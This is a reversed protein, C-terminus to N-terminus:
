AGVLEVAGVGIGESFAFFSDGAGSSWSADVGGGESRNERLVVHEALVRARVHLPPSMGLIKEVVAGLVEGHDPDEPDNTPPSPAVRTLCRRRLPRGLNFFLRVSSLSCYPLVVTPPDPPNKRRFCAAEPATPRNQIVGRGNQIM